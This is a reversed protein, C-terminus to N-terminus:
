YGGEFKERIFETDWQYDQYSCFERAETPSLSFWEKHTRCHGFRDHLRMEAYRMAYSRFTHRVVIGPFERGLERFRKKVKRAIGIKYEGRWEMLYIFGPDGPSTGGM